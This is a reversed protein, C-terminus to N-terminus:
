QRRVRSRQSRKGPSPTDPLRAPSSSLSGSRARAAPACRAAIRREPPCTRPPVCASALTSDRLLERRWCCTVSLCHVEPPKDSGGCECGGQDASDPPIVRMLLESLSTVCHNRVCQIRDPPHERAKRLTAAYKKLLDNVAERMYVAMPARTTESLRKLQRVAAIDYYSTIQSQSGKSKSIM